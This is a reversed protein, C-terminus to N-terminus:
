RACNGNLCGGPALPKRFQEPALVPMTGAVRGPKYTSLQRENANTAPTATPRYATQVTQGTATTGAAKAFYMMGTASGAACTGCARKGAECPFFVWAPPTCGQCPRCCKTKGHDLPVFFLWDFFRKTKCGLYSGGTPSCSGCSSGCAGSSYSWDGPASHGNPVSGNAALTPMAAGNTAVPRSAPEAARVISPATLAVTALAIWCVNRMVLDELGVATARRLRACARGSGEM